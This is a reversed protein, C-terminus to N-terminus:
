SVVRVPDPAYGRVSPASASVSALVDFIFIVIEDSNLRNYRAINRRDSKLLGCM